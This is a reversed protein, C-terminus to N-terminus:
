ADSIVLAGKSVGARGATHGCGCCAVCGQKERATTILGVGDGSRKDSSQPATPTAANQNKGEYENNIDNFIYGADPYHFQIATAPDHTM